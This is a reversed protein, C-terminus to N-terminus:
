LGRKQRQLLERWDAAIYLTSALATLDILFLYRYDCAISIVFFTATFVFDAVILSAMVIDAPERRRILLGLAGLGLLAFLAHSFVPTHWLFFEGYHKLALDHADMRRVIVYGDLPELGPQNGVHFPHCLGVDPPQFVWRFLEARVKLYLWPREGVLARWQKAYVSAPITTIADDIAPSEMTDNKLPTWVKVTWSRVLHALGPAERDMVSIKLSPDRRLMGSIDYLRLVKFQQESSPVGDWRLQLAANGALALAVTLTFLGAGYAAGRRWHGALHRVAIALGTAICPVIVIGNQRTLVALALFVSAAALLAFRWRREPWHKVALGILVTALLAADAFLTDKWVVAEILVLQPLLLMAAAVCAAAWSVRKPLWLLAALAGFALLMDMGTFWGAVPGPLTDFVGLIWSMVPPHWYGYIGRRGELWQVFSDFEMSGPYNVAYITLGGLLVIATAVLRPNRLAAKWDSM